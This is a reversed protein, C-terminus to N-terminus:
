NIWGQEQFRKKLVDAIEKATAKARGTVKSSGSEEGYVKMGTSIILGAPNGTAVLGVVGLAAGPSKAGGAAVTGSGLKRLGQATVQFGEVATKLESAGSGFGIVLRKAASGQQVSILYGRIVLDNIQPTTTADAVAASMGMGQIDKVLEAAMEAGLQRGTAIQKATPPTANEDYQGALASDAPVDAPTAAFDYVWITNPRPIQGTVLEQRNAVKTSACGAAVVIAFLCPAITAITRRLASPAKPPQCPMALLLQRQASNGTRKKM